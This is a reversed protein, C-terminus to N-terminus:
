NKYSYSESWKSLAAAPAKGEAPVSFEGERKTPLGTKPDVSVTFTMTVVPKDTKRVLDYTAGSRFNTAEYLANADRPPVSVPKAPRAEERAHQREVFFANALARYEGEAFEQALWAGGRAFALATNAAFNPPAALPPQEELAVPPPPSEWRALNMVKGDCTVTLRYEKVGAKGAVNLELKNGEDIKLTGTVKAGATESTFEVLLKRASTVAAEMKRYDAEQPPRPAPAAACSVAFAIGLLTTRLSM